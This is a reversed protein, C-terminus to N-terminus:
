EEAENKDTKLQKLVSFPNIKTEEQEPLSGFLQNTEKVNCEALEHKPVLPIGLMLEDEVLLLTNIEGHENMEVIDYEEPILDVNADPKVPTFLFHNNIVLEFPQNCRQCLLVVTLEFNGHLVVLGQADKKFELCVPVDPSAQEVCGQLREMKSLPYIGDFTSRQLASKIPDISLPLNVKAM